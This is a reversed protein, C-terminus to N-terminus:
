GQSIKLMSPARQLISVGRISSYFELTCMTCPVLPIQFHDQKPHWCWLLIVSGLIAPQALTSTGARFGPCGANVQPGPESRYESAPSIKCPCKGRQTKMKHNIQPGKSLHADTGKWLVTPMKLM